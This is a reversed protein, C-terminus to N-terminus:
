GLRPAPVSGPPQPAPARDGSFRPPRGALFADIGEAADPNAEPSWRRTVAEDIDHGAADIMAKAAAVSIASRTSVLHALEAVRGALAGPPTVEGVLGLRLAADADILEATFVLRKAAAPGLVRTLRAVTQPPYVIGLKAPTVGFRAGEAAVRLDCALALQMGGGVCYGEVAAVTPKPFAALREETATMRHELDVGRERASRLGRIDMGASFDGAAGTLVLVRVGSDSQLDTLLDDLRDLMATTLANRRAPHDITVTAVPGTVRM